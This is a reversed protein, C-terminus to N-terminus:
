PGDGARATARASGVVVVVVVDLGDVHFQVLTGHNRTALQAAASRGGSVGALAAADAATQARQRDLMARGLGAVALCMLAAILVVVAM